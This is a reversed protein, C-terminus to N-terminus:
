QVTSTAKPRPLQNTVDRIITHPFDKSLDIRDTLFDVIPKTFVKMEFKIESPCSAYEAMAKTKAIKNKAM